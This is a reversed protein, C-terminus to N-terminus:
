APLGKNKFKKNYQHRLMYGPVLYGAFVAISSVIMIYFFDQVLFIVIAAAWNVLAGILLPTFRMVSGHIFMWFAYLIYYYGFVFSSGSIYSGAVLAFLSLFFGTNLKQFLESTYTKVPTSKRKGMSSVFHLLLGLVLMGTWVPGVFSQKGWYKLLASAFSAGFLLWGWMLWGTGREQHDNRAANIMQEIIAFSETHSLTEKNNM